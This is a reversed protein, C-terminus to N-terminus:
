GKKKRRAALMTIRFSVSVVAFMVLGGYLLKGTVLLYFGIIALVLAGYVWGRIADFHQKSGRVKKATVLLPIASAKRALSAGDEIVDDDEEVLGLVYATKVEELSNYTLSGDKNKVTYKM